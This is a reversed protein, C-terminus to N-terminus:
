KEAKERYVKEAIKFLEPYLQRLGMELAEKAIRSMKFGPKTNYLYQLVMFAPYSWVGIKPDKDLFSSMLEEVSSSSGKSEERGEERLAKVRSEEANGANEVRKEEKQVSEERGEKGKEAYENQRSEEREEKETMVEEKKEISGPTPPTSKKRNLLFDLESV